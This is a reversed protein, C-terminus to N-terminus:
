FLKTFLKWNRRPTSDRLKVTHCTRYQTAPQFRQHFFRLHDGADRGQRHVRLRHRARFGSGDSGQRDGLRDGLRFGAGSRVGGGAFAGRNVRAFGLSQRDAAAEIGQGTPRKPHCVTHQHRACQGDPQESWTRHRHSRNGQSSPQNDNACDQGQNRPKGLWGCMRRQDFGTSIGGGLLGWGQLPQRKAQLLSGGKEWGGM